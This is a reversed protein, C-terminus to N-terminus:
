VIKENNHERLNMSSENQIHFSPFYPFIVYFLVYLVINKWYIKLQNGKNNALICKKTNIFMSFSLFIKKENQTKINSSTTFLSCGSTRSFSKGSFIPHFLIRDKM